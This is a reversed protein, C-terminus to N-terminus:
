HASWIDLELSYVFTWGFVVNFLLREVLNCFVHRVSFTGVGFHLLFRNRIPTRIIWLLTSIITYRRCQRCAPGHFEVCVSVSLSLLRFTDTLHQCLTSFTVFFIRFTTAYALNKDAEWEQTHCMDRWSVVVNAGEKHM